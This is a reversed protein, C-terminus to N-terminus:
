LLFSVCRDKYRYAVSGLRTGPMYDTSLFHITFSHIFSHIQKGEGAIDM